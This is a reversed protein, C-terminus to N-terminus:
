FSKLADREEDYIEVVRGLGIINAGRLVDPHFACLKLTGGRGQVEKALSLLVAFATSSLYDNGTFDVLVKTSGDRELALSLDEGFQMAEPPHRLERSTVRVVTVGGAYELRFHPSEDSAM